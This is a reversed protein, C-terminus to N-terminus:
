RLDHGWLRHHFLNRAHRAALETVRVDGDAIAEIEMLKARRWAHIFEAHQPTGDLDSPRMPFRKIAFTRNIHFILEIYPSRILQFIAKRCEEEIALMDDFGADDTLTLVRSRLAEMLARTEGSAAAAARRAVVVWLAAAIESLEEDDSEVMQLYASVSSEIVEVSPRAAFYGGNIGRRVLLLGERELLRAVQRVTPRSVGLMTVLDEESGLLDGEEASWIITRLNAAVTDINAKSRRSSM